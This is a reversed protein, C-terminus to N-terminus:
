VWRGAALGIWFLALGLIPQLLLNIGAQGWSASEVMQASEFAWTSFTTFAGMFGTLLPLRWAPPVLEREEILAWILGFLLCGLLNVAMTGWPFREGLMRQALGGLGYRGLTGAAGALALVFLRTATSEMM